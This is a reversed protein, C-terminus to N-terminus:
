CCCVFILLKGFSFLVCVSFSYFWSVIENVVVEFCVFLCRPIFRILFTSSKCLSFGLCDFILNFVVHSSPFFEWAWLNTAYNHCHGYWWSFLSICIWHLWHLEEWFSFFDSIENQIYFFGLAFKFLLLFAVFIVM